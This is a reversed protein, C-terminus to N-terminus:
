TAAPVIGPATATKPAPFASTTAAPMDNRNLFGSSGAPPSYGTGNWTYDYTDGSADTLV